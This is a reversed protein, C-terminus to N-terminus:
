LICGKKREQDLTTILMTRVEEKTRYVYDLQAYDAPSVKGHLALQKFWNLFLSVAQKDAEREYLNLLEAELLGIDYHAEALFLTSVINRITLLYNKSYTRENVLLHKFHLAYDGLSPASEILEAIEQKATWKRKGNYLVIPLIAPLKKIRKHNAIYDLYFNTLYNLVRVVMFRDVSSQFELLIYIYVTKGRLHLKYILVKIM